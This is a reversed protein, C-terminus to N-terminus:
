SFSIYHLTIYHLTIYHLPGFHQVLWCVLRCQCVALRALRWGILNIEKTMMCIRAKAICWTCPELWLMNVHFLELSRSWLMTCLASVEHRNEKPASTEKVISAKMEQGNFSRSRVRPLFM